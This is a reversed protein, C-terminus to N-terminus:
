HERGSEGVDGQHEEAADQVAPQELARGVVGPAAPEEAQRKAENEPHEPGDRQQLPQGVLWDQM